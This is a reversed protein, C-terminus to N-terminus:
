RSYLVLLSSLIIHIFVSSALSMASNKPTTCKEGACMDFDRVSLQNIPRSVGNDLCTPCDSTTMGPLVLCLVSKARDRCDSDNAIWRMLYVNGCAKCQLPNNHLLLKEMKTDKNWLRQFAAGTDNPFATLKNDSLDLIRLKNGIDRNSIPYMLTESKLSMRSLVAVELNPYRALAIYRGDPIIRGSMNLVVLEPRLPATINYDWLTQTIKADQSSLSLDLNRVTTNAFVEGQGSFIMNPNGSLNLTDLRLNAFANSSIAVLAKNRSLDLHTLSRFADFQNVLLSRINCEAAKLIRIVNVTPKTVWEDLGIGPFDTKSVDLYQLKPFKTLFGPTISFSGGCRNDHLDLYELENLAKQLPAFFCIKNHALSLKRLKDGNTGLELLGLGNNFTSQDCNHIYLERLEASANTYSVVDNWYPNFFDGYLVRTLNLVTISGISALAKGTIQVNNFKFLHLQRLNTLGSFAADQLQLRHGAEPQESTANNLIRLVTVDPLNIKAGALATDASWTIPSGDSPGYNVFCVAEGSGYTCSITATVFTVSHYGLLLLTAVCYYNIWMRYQIFLVSITILFGYPATIIHFFSGQFVKTFATSLKLRVVFHFCATASYSLKNVGSYQEYRFSNCNM